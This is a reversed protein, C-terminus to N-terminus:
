RQAIAALIEPELVSELSAAFTSTLHDADRYMVHGDTIAGCRGHSCFHETFDVYHVHLLGVTGAKEATAVAPDLVAAEPMECSSMAYWAHRASRALCSPIDFAFEPNDRILIVPLDSRTLSALTAHTGREIATALAPSAMTAPDTHRSLRNTASGLFVLAPKIGIINAIARARWRHCQGALAPNPDVSYDAASCGSKVVTILKWGHRVALDRMPEFWPLIHSDGFLVVTTTGSSNGFICTKLREDGDESICQRRPLSTIDHTARATAEIQPLASLRNAFHSAFTAAIVSLAMIAVGAVLTGIPRRALQPHFRIPNEFFRHTLAALLLSAAVACMKGAFGTNPL